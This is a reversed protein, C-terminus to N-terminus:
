ILLSPSPQLKYLPAYGPRGLPPSLPPPVPGGAAGMPRAWRDGSPPAVPGGTARQPAVAGRKKWPGRQLNSFFIVRLDQRGIPPRGPTNKFYKLVSM